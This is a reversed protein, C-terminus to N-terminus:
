HVWRHQIRTNPMPTSTRVYLTWAQASSDHVTYGGPYSGAGPPVYVQGQWAVMAQQSETASSAITPLYNGTVLSYNASYAGYYIYNWNGGLATFPNDSFYSTLPVIEYDASTFQTVENPDDHVSDREWALMGNSFIRCHARAAAAAAKKSADHYKVVAVGSLIALVVIVVILEVLTFAPGVGALVGPRNRRTGQLSAPTPQATAAATNM